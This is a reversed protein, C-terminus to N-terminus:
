IIESIHSIQSVLCLIMPSPLSFHFLLFGSLSLGYSVRLRLFCVSPQQLPPHYYPHPPQTISVPSPIHQPSHQSNNLVSSECVQVWSVFLTNNPEPTCTQSEDTKCLEYHEGYCMSGWHGDGAVGDRGSEEVGGARLKNRSIFLRKHNTEREPKM